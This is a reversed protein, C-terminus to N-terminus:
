LWISSKVTIVFIANLIINTNCIVPRSVFFVMRMQLLAVTLSTAPHDNLFSIIIAFKIPQNWHKQDTSMALSDMLNCIHQNHEIESVNNNQRNEKVLNAGTAKFPVKLLFLYLNLDCWPLVKNELSSEKLILRTGKKWRCHSKTTLKFCLNLTFCKKKRWDQSLARSYLTDKITNAPLTAKVLLFLLLTCFEPEAVPWVRNVATM